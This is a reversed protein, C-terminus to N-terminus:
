RADRLRLLLAFNSTFIALPTSTDQLVLRRMEVLILCEFAIVSRRYCLSLGIRVRQRWRHELSQM